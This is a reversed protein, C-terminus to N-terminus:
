NDVSERSEEGQPETKKHLKATSQRTSRVNAWIIWAAAIFLIIQPLLTEAWPYIGLEPFYYKMWPLNTSGLIFNAEKLEAVGKGIFSLCMIFLLISTAMFIPRVPLKAGGYRFLVYVVALVAAAAAFGGGIWVENHGGSSFAATYFLVMEAGERIVALFAAFVIAKAAGDSVSTKVMGSIYNQWNEGSTKGLMWNSVYFLMAVAIFMTLGEFLESAQGAGGTVVHLVWALVFSLVVGALVGYYVSRVLRKHGSKVLYLVIAAVVLLAELGERLLLTFATTFDVWKLASTDAKQVEDSELLQSGATEPSEDSLVGDLVMADRAVSVMITDIMDPIKPDTPDDRIDIKVRTFRREMLAKRSGPLTMSAPELSIEYWKFYAENILDLAEKDKGAEYAQRADELVAAMCLAYDQYTRQSGDPNKVGKDCRPLEKAKGEALIVTRSESGSTVAQVSTTAHASVANGLALIPLFLLAAILVWGASRVLHSPM